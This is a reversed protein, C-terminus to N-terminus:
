IYNGHNFYGLGQTVKRKRRNGRQKKRSKRSRGEVINKRGGSGESKAEKSKKLISISWSHLKERKEYQILEEPQPKLTELDLTM